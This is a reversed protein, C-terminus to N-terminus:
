DVGLGGGGRMLGAEAGIRPEDLLLDTGIRGLRVDEM